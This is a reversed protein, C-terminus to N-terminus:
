DSPRTIRGAVAMAELEASTVVNAHKGLGYAEYQTPAPPRWGTALVIAGVTVERRGGTGDIKVTFRGPQGSVEAVSSQTLVTVSSLATLERIQADIDPSHLEEYPPE